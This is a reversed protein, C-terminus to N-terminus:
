SSAPRLFWSPQEEAKTNWTRSLPRMTPSTFFIRRHEINFPWPLLPLLLISLPFDLVFHFYHPTRFLGSQAYTHYSSKGVSVHDLSLSRPATHSTHLMSRRAKRPTACKHHRGITSPRDAHRRGFFKPRPSLLPKTTLPFAPFPRNYDLSPPQPRTPPSAHLVLISLTHMPSPPALTACCVSEGSPSLPALLM